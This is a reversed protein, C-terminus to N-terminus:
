APVDASEEKRCVDRVGNLTGSFIDDWNLFTHYGYVGVRLLVEPHTGLKGVVGYIRLGQEDKDDQASFRAPMNGHSHLDLVAGEIHKYEVSAAGQKQVTTVLHYREDSWTIALYREKLPDSIFINLALDFLAQPIKGHQLKILPEIPLLGRIDCETIQIKSYLHENEAVVYVGDAAFFYTYASGRTEAQGHIIYGAISM